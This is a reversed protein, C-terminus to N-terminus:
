AFVFNAAFNTSATKSADVHPKVGTHFAKYGNLNQVFGAVGGQDGSETIFGRGGTIQVM